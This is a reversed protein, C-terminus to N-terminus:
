STHVLGCLYSVSSFASLSAAFIATNALATPAYLKILHCCFAREEKRTRHDVEAMLPPSPTSVAGDTNSPKM